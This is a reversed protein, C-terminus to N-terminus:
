VGGGAGPNYTDDSPEPAPGPETVSAVALFGAAGIATIAAAAVPVGNVEYSGVVWLQDYCFRILAHYTVLSLPIVALLDTRHRRLAIASALATAALASWGASQLHGFHFGDYAGPPMANYGHRFLLPVPAGLYCAVALRPARVAAFWGALVLAAELALFLDSHGLPPYWTGLVGPPRPLNM